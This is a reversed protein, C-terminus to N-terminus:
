VLCDYRIAKGSLSYSPKQGALYPGKLPRKIVIKKPHLALAAGLLEAENTCPCELQKLLQFKKKVLASKTRAPFMPDLLIVDPRIGSKEMERMAAISDRGRLEMRAAIVALDPDLRARRISDFLLAAIVPNYEYLWIHFGSAALLLSDQGMGATADLLLPEAPGNKIRAAKVLMERELNKQKLRSSMESFDGSLKLIGDTLTLADQETQLHLGPPCADILSKLEEETLRNM